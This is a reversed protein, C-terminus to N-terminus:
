DDYVPTEEIISWTSHPLAKELHEVTSEADERTACRLQLEDGGRHRIAGADLMVKRYEETLSLQARQRAAVIKFPLLGIGVAERVTLGLTM